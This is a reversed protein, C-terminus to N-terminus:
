RRGYAEDSWPVPEPQTSMICHTFVDRAAILARMVDFEARTAEYEERFAPDQMQKEIYAKLGYAEEADTKM